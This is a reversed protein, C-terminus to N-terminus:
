YHPVDNTGLAIVWADPDHGTEKAHDIADVGPNPGDQPDASARRGSVGDILLPDYGEAPIAEAIADHSGETLSDGIVVVTDIDVPEDSAADSSGGGSGANSQSESCAAGMVVA